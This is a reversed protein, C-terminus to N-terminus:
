LEVGYRRLLDKIAELSDFNEPVIDMGDISIRYREDLCSVLSIIDFSDLMGEQTMHKANRFDCEPRIQELIAILEEM